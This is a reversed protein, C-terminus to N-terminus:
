QVSAVLVHQLFFIMLCETHELYNSENVYLPGLLCLITHIIVLPIYLLIYKAYVRLGGFALDLLM